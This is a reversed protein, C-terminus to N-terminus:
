LNTRKYNENMDIIKPVLQEVVVKGGNITAFIGIAFLNSIRTVGILEEVEYLAIDSNSEGMGGWEAGGQEASGWTGDNINNAQPIGRSHPSPISYTSYINYDGDRYLRLQIDQDYSQKGRFYVYRARKFTDPRGDDMFPTDAQFPYGAGNATYGTDDKFTQGSSDEGYYVDGNYVTNVNVGQGLELSFGGTNYDFVIRFNNTPSGKTKLSLKIIRKNYIMVPNDQIPDLMDMSRKIIETLAKTRPDTGLNRETGLSRVANNKQDYFWIDNEVVITSKQNTAGGTRSLATFQTLGQSFRDKTNFYISDQKFIYLDNNLVRMATITGDVGLLDTIAGNTTDFIEVNLPDTALAPKSAIWANPALRDGAIFMREVWFQMMTGRPSNPVVSFTSNTSIKGIGNGSNSINAVAIAGGVGSFTITPASTYGTGPNTITVSTVTAGGLTATGAAGTGGGGTLNIVPATYGSGGNNVSFGTVTGALVAATINAGSGTGDTVTVTPPTIYGSGSAIVQVSKIVGSDLVATAAAGSGGGGTFTVSPPAGYPGGGDLVTITTITGNTTELPNVVYLNNNYVLGDTFIDAVNPWITSIIDWLQTSENFKYFSKNYFEYLYNTLISTDWYPLQYIGQAKIGGILMNGAARYGKKSSVVKGSFRANSVYYFKDEPVSNSEEYNEMGTFFKLNKLNRLGKQM